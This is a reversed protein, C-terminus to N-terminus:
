ETAYGSYTSGVQIFKMLWLEGDEKISGNFNDISSLPANIKERKRNRHERYDLLPEQDEDEFDPQELDSKSTKKDPTFM